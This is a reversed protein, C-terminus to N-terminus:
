KREELRDQYEVVFLELEAACDPDLIERFPDIDSSQKVSRVFLNQEFIGARKTGDAFIM